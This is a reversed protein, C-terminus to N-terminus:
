RTSARREQSVDGWKSRVLNKFQIAAQHRIDPGVSAHSVIKLLCVAFGPMNMASLIHKEAAHLPCSLLALNHSIIM